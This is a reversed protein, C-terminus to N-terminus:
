RLSMLHESHPRRVWCSSLSRTRHNASASPPGSPIYAASRRWRYSRTGSFAQKGLPQEAVSVFASEKGCSRMVRM